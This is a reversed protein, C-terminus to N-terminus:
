VSICYTNDYFFRKPNIVAAAQLYERLDILKFTIWDGTVDNGYYYMYTANYYMSFTCNNNVVTTCYISKGSSQSSGYKNMTPFILEYLNGSTIYSYTLKNDSNIFYIDKLAMMIETVDFNNYIVNDITPNTSNLSFIGNLSSVNKSSYGDTTSIIVGEDIFDLSNGNFIATM